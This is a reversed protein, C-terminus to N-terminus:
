TFFLESSSTANGEFETLNVSEGSPVCGLPIWEDRCVAWPLSSQFSMALYYLCLAIISVYYSLVYGAGLAQAYGTGKFAPSLAWVRVCNGSSFQGLSTELYYMPKGIVLLVIIYPILFAGGGNQYAIFPFRWVNGLGVSTAICSMLFELKNDWKPRNALKPDVEELEPKVKVPMDSDSPPKGSEPSPDFGGNVHDGNQAM